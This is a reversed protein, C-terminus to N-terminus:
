WDNRAMGVHGQEIKTRGYILKTKNQKKSKLIIRKSIM